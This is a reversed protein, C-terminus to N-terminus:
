KSNAKFVRLFNGGLIKNIDKESYGKKLLAETIKPFDQVGELGLPASDIGDFDSGLGVYDVGVLKVIYDIHDILLSLPPRIANLEAPYKKSMLESVEYEPKKLANLSDFEAKHKSFFIDRKKFYTSDIFGSFFNIDIVGGNKAVAKIQDDKLNRPVPCISYVSSHSAIVPKTTTNIADWFTKEGVHSIDVMMGLENMRRVVQKGFETLGYPTVSFSKKTEDAASTAWSTSNNWTLTMYRVGRKFLSDLNDLDDEMMHGGEVGMMAALKHAKLAHDLQAPTAVMEMKGPNRKAIAYLSDIEANAYKFATGKGYRDDCFISFMQIDVGGKKFRALDSHAKGTLDNEFDLGAMTITSLVDNHTDAVIAKEHITKYAQSFIISQFSALILLTSFIKQLVTKHM